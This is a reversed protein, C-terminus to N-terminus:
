EGARAPRRAGGRREVPTPRPQERQLSRTAARPRGRRRADAPARAHSRERSLRRSARTACSERRRRGTPRRPSGVRGVLRGGGASGRGQEGGGVRVSARELRSRMNCCRFEGTLAGRSLEARRGAPQACEFPAPDGLVLLREAPECEHEVLGLALVRGADAPNGLAGLCAGRTVRRAVPPRSREYARM